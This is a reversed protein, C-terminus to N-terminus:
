VTDLEGAVDVAAFMVERRLAGDLNLALQTCVHHEREVLAGAWQVVLAVGLRRHLAGVAPRPAAEVLETTPVLPVAVALRHVADHLAPGELAEAGRACGDDAAHVEVAEGDAA